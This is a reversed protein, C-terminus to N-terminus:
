RRPSYMLESSEDAGRVSGEMLKLLVIRSGHAPLKFALYLSFSFSLVFYL